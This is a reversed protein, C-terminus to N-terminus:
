VNSSNNYDEMSTISFLSDNKLIDLKVVAIDSSLNRYM